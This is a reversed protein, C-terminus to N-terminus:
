CNNKVEHFLQGRGAVISDHSPGKRFTLTGNHDFQVYLGSGCPGDVLREIFLTPAQQGYGNQAVWATQCYGHNYIVSYVRYDHNTVLTVDWM